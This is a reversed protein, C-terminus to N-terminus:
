SAFVEYPLPQGAIGALVNEAARTAMANRAPYTASGIHPLVLCNDLKLLASDTPLSEPTCVDLGAGFIQRNELAAILADQDIVEGRATNILIAHSRMQALERAGLLHRTGGTLPVHVSIVDSRSLLEELDVRQAKSSAALESKDNRATYIVPMQWGHHLRQAVQSGIRGMGIIGLTKGALELGQWGTPEWTRWSGDLVAASAERVKRAVAFLLTIALDATADTLVDPTNGVRVGRESAARLDINNYGVAFNSIVKLNPGAAELVELDIRDSLLSLIADTGGVGALLEDRTPPLQGDHIRVDASRRLLELGCEPIHRCVYVLPKTM